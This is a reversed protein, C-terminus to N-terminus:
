RGDHDFDGPIAREVRHWADQTAQKAENWALSSKGRAKDWGQALSAEADNWRSKPQALRSEWGYRYADQYDSYPRGASVYPRSQYTKEWYANELTPNVSEAVGHGAAGGAVAGIVGGVVAGVPGGVVAGVAAGAAGGGAAGVGTGVPHAGPEGTIPDANIDVEDAVLIKTDMLSYGKRSVREASSQALPSALSFLLALAM